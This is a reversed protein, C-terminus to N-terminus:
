VSHEITVLSWASYDLVGSNLLISPVFLSSLSEEIGRAKLTTAYM